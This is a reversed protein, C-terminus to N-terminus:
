NLAKSSIEWAAQVRERVTEVIEGVATFLHPLLKEQSTKVQANIDLAADLVVLSGICLDLESWVSQLANHLAQEKTGTNKPAEDKNTKKPPQTKKRPM